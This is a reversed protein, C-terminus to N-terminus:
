LWPVRQLDMLKEVVDLMENGFAVLDKTKITFEGGNTVIKVVDQSTGVGYLFGTKAGAFTVNREYVTVGCHNEVTKQETPKTEMKPVEREEDSSLLGGNYRNSAPIAFRQQFRRVTQVSCGVANAIEIQTFRQESMSRIKEIDDECMRRGPM